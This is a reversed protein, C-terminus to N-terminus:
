TLFCRAIACFHPTVGAATHVAQQVSSTWETQSRWSQSGCGALADGQEALSSPLGDLRFLCFVLSTAEAPGIFSAGAKGRHPLWPHEPKLTPSQTHGRKVLWGCLAPYPKVSMGEERLATPCCISVANVRRDTCANPPPPSGSRLMQGM